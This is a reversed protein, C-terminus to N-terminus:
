LAPFIIRNVNKGPPPKREYPLWYSGTICVNTYLQTCTQHSPNVIFACSRYTQACFPFLIMYVVDYVHTWHSFARPRITVHYLVHKSSPTITDVCDASIIIYTSCYTHFKMMYSKMPNYDQLLSFIFYFLFSILTFM